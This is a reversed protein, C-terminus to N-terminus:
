NGCKVGKSKAEKALKNILDALDKEDTAVHSIVFNYRGNMNENENIVYGNEVETITLSLTKVRNKTGM